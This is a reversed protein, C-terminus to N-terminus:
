WRGVAEERPLITCMEGDGLFCWVGHIGGEGCAVPREGLVGLEFTQRGGRDLSGVGMNLVVGRLTSCALFM